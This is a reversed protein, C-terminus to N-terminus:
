LARGLLFGAGMLVLALLGFALKIATGKVWIVEDPRVRFSRIHIGFRENAPSWIDGPAPGFVKEYSKITQAYQEHYRAKDHSTGTTPGHHLERELVEPCFRQWYDRSYTLHLHWAQDVQDSPTCEHGSTCALFVFRRYEEIVRLAYDESWRNERALRAPFSLPADAPGIEHAALRHWLPNDPAM